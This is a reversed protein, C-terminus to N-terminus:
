VIATQLMKENNFVTSCIEVVYFMTWCACQVTSMSEQQSMFFWLKTWFNPLFVTRHVAQHNWPQMEVLKCNTGINNTPVISCLLTRVDLVDNKTFNAPALAGIPYWQNGDRCSFSLNRNVHECNRNTTQASQQNLLKNRKCWCNRLYLLAKSKRFNSQEQPIKHWGSMLFYRKTGSTQM